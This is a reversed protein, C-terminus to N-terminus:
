EEDIPLDKISDSLFACCATFIGPNSSERNGAVNLVQIDNEALWERFKEIQHRTVPTGKDWYVHYDPKGWTRCFTRTLKSGGSNKGFILTGDSNLVNQETRPPYARSTHETLGYEKKFDPRDGKETRYGGPMMGGTELGLLYKAAYLGAEDAGTQGGSIIKKVM